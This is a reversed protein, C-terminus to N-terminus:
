STPMISLAAKATLAVVSVLIADEDCELWVQNVLAGAPPTKGWGEWVVPLSLRSPGPLLSKLNGSVMNALEGLADAQEERGVYDRELGFMVSAAREAFAASCQLLVDGQWEGDISVSSTLAANPLAESNRPTSLLLPMNLVALWIDSATATILEEMSKM